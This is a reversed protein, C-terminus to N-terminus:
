LPERARMAGQHATLLLRGVTLYVDALRVYAQAGPDIIKYFRALDDGSLLSEIRQFLDEVDATSMIEGAWQKVGFNSNHGM